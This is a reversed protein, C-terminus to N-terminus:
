VSEWAFHSINKAEESFSIGVLYIEKGESLYKQAYNREKIQELASASEEVKFEIIYIYDNFKLTLDIRGRSTVDEAILEFGLSALYAYIVSAYYGEFTAINNKVYNNYPISAFLSTLTTKLTELDAKALANYIDTKKRNKFTDDCLYDIFIDNLSLRVERNPIKLTYELTDYPTQEMNKITLYGTQFLLTEVKINEITFSNLIEEGVRLDALQPIFYNNAKIVDILFTPTGTEFWYNKYMKHNQIFLLIDFPNYVRDGLFNYGNYWVKLKELDVGELHKKFKTEIDRHTYGCVNGYEPDLSIDRINNLGSFISVKSFKSVGTLFAFHIFEDSGKIVSYFNALGNRVENAIEISTINDLLPKDYEDILIVVKQNYKKEVKMILERFCGDASEQAKCTVGLREQNEELITIIKRDLSARSEVRGNAFSIIIVPYKQSWDYKDYIYLGEFLEQNGEFINRLTDLFLSKGFRRPRSLFVYKNNEILELAMATKDIYLYNSKIVESFTQIGIPLKQLM